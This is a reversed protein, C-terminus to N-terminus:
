GGFAASWAIGRRLVERFSAHEWSLHDHGSLFCFVRCSGPTRTWALQPVSLPNDTTLLVHSTEDPGRMKYTEDVMEWGSLGRTIGHEPDAVTVAVKENPHYTMETSGLGTLARWLPFDPYALLAHHLFVIGQRTYALRKLASRPKGAYWPAGEDTPGSKPMAYFVLADYSDRVEDPSATFDDLHQIDAEIGDLGRFLAHFQPVEFNHWGTIVATRLITM